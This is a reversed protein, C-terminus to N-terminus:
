GESSPSWVGVGVLPHSMEPQLGEHMQRVQYNAVVLHTYFVATHANMEFDEVAAEPFRAMWGWARHEYYRPSGVSWANLVAAASELERVSAWPPQGAGRFNTKRQEWEVLERQWARRTPYDGKAPRAGFVAEFGEPLVEPASAVRDLLLWPEPGSFPNVLWWEAGYEAPAQRYPGLPHKWMEPVEKPRAIM